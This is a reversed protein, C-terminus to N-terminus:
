QQLVFCEFDPKLFKGLELDPILRMGLALYGMMRTLRRYEFLKMRRKVTALGDQVLIYGQIHQVHQGYAGFEGGTEFYRDFFVLNPQSNLHLREVAPQITAMGTVAAKANRLFRMTLVTISTPAM